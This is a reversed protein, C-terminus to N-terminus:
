LLHLAYQSAKVYRSSYTGLALKDLFFRRLFNPGQEELRTASSESQLLILEDGPALVTSSAPLLDLGTKHQLGM